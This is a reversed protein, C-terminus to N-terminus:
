ADPDDEDDFWGDDGDELADYMEFDDPEVRLLAEAEAYFEEPVAIKVGGFIGGLAASAAERDLYVPIGASRLLGAPIEADSLAFAHAVVIWVRQDPSRRIIERADDDPELPTHPQDNMARDYRTTLAAAIKSERVPLDLQAFHHVIAPIIALWLM